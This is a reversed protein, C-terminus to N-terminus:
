RYLTPRFTIQPFISSLGYVGFWCCLYEVIPNVQCKLGISKLHTELQQLTECPHIQVWTDQLLHHTNLSTVALGIKLTDSVEELSILKHDKYLRVNIIPVNYLDHYSITFDLRIGKVELSTHSYVKNGIPLKKVYNNKIMIDNYSTNWHLNDILLENFQDINENFQENTIRSLM